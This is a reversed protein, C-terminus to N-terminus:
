SLQLFINKVKFFNRQWKKKCENSINLNCINRYTLRKKNILYKLPKTQILLLVYTLQCGTVLHITCLLMM